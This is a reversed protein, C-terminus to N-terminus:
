PPTVLLGDPPADRFAGDQFPGADFQLCGALPDPVYHWSVSDSGMTPTHDSNRLFASPVNAPFSQAVLVDIWHCANPDGLQDAGFPIHVSYVGGDLTDPTVDYANQFAPPTALVDGTNGTSNSRNTSGPDFDVFARIEFNPDPQGPLVPVMFNGDPPLATLDENAPPFVGNRLILPEQERPTPLEPPPATICGSMGMAVAWGTACVAAIATAAITRLAISATQPM